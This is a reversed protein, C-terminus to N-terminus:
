AAKPLEEAAVRCEAVWRYRKLREPENLCVAAWADMVIGRGVIREMVDAINDSSEIRHVRRERAPSVFDYEHAAAM